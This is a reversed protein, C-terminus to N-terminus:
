TNATSYTVPTPVTYSRASMAFPVGRSGLWTFTTGKAPPMVIPVTSLATINTGRPKRSGSMHRRPARRAGTTPKPNANERAM